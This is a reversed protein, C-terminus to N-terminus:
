GTKGASFIVSGSSFEVAVEFVVDSWTYRCAPILGTWYTFEPAAVTAM